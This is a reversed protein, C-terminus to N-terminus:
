LELYPLPKMLPLLQLVAQNIAQKLACLQEVVADPKFGLIWSWLRQHENLLVRGKWVWTTPGRRSERNM